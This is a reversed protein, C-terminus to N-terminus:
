ADPLVKAAIRWYEGDSQYKNWCAEDVAKVVGAVEARTIAYGRDAAVEVLERATRYLKGSRDETGSDQGGLRLKTYILRPDAAVGKPLGCGALVAPHRAAANDAPPTTKDGALLWEPLPPLPWGLEAPWHQWRYRTGEPHMSPPVVIYRGDGRLELGRRLWNRAGDPCAYLLHFGRSTINVLTRPLRGHERTLERLTALGLAGDIDLAVIGSAQGTAIAVNAAPYRSWWEVIQVRDSSAGYVGRATLPEKGSARLPLVAWGMAAYSLAVQQVSQSVGATATTM